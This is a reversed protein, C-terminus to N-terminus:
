TLLNAPGRKEAAELSTKSRRPLYPRIQGIERTDRVRYYL